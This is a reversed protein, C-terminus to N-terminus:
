ALMGLYLVESSSTRFYSQTLRLMIRTIRDVSSIGQMPWNTRNVRRPCARQACARSRAPSSCTERASGTTCGSMMKESISVFVLHRDCPFPILYLPAHWSRGKTSLVSAQWLASNRPLRLVMRVIRYPGIPSRPLRKLDPLAMM